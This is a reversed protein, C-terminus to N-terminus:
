ILLQYKEYIYRYVQDTETQTLINNYAFMEYHDGEYYNVTTGIRGFSIKNSVNSSTAAPITGAFSLTRDTTNRYYKLRTSNTAQTGDFRIEDLFYLNSSGDNFSGAKNSGDCVVAYTTPATYQIGFRDNVSAGYEVYGRRKLIFMTIKTQTQWKSLQTISDIHRSVGDTRICKKGMLGDVLLPRDAETAQDVHYGNGSKDKWESVKSATLKISDFDNADFWATCNPIDTPKFRSKVSINHLGHLLGKQLGNGLGVGLGQKISDLSKNM